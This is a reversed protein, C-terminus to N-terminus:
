RTRLVGRVLRLAESLKEADACLSIRICDRGNRGFICGPTVFVGTRYLLYDSILEGRTKAVGDEPASVAIGAEKALSETEGSKALLPSDEPVRGWVFLGTGDAPYEAGLADMIECAIRRRERYGENLQEFWEAGQSLAAVAAMQMPKFMGSDMQSKVKLVSSILEQAGAVMGIRWGSMNHSKSLSNLEICCEKARPVSLISLPKDTLVFSYPNDNVILIDHELGFKVIRRYLEESAAKGTPMSPYNVWMMKVGDLNMRELAEFDPSWGNEPLLDYTLIDAEVLELASTYTPYGPDPVLVKDGRDIFALALLLIGEKSGALPQIETAPDLTVGYFRGYWEAFAGRLEPLGKYNQYIHSDTKHACECLAEIAAAPPMRDPAGIGLSIVPKQGKAKRWANVAALEKNKRSFYYEKVAETRKAPRIMIKTEKQNM